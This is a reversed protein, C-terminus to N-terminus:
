FCFSNLTLGYYFSVNTKEFSQIRPQWPSVDESFVIYHSRRIFTFWFFFFGYRNWLKRNEMLSPQFKYSFDPFFVSPTKSKRGGLIRVNIASNQTKTKIIWNKREWFEAKGFFFFFLRWIRHNILQAKVTM